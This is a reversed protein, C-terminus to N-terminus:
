VDLGVSHSHMRTQLILKRLVFLAMIEHTPEFKSVLDYYRGEIFTSFLKTIGIAKKSLKETLIKNPTNFGAVHSSVRVFQILQSTIFVTLHLGLFQRKQLDKVVM